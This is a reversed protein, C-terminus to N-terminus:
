ILSAGRYCHGQRGGHPCGSRGGSTSQTPLPSRHLLQTIFFGIRRIYSGQESGRSTETFHNNKCESVSTLLRLISRRGVIQVVFRGSKSYLPVESMLFLGGGYPWWPARPVIRNCPGLPVRKKHALYEQVVFGDSKSHSSSDIRERRTRKFMYYLPVESM